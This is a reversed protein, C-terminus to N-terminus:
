TINLMQNMIDTRSFDSNWYNYPNSLFCVDNNIVLKESDRKNYFALCNNRLEYELVVDIKIDVGPESFSQTSRLQIDSTIDCEYNVENFSILPPQWYLVMIIASILMKIFMIM